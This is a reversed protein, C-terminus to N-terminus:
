GAMSSLYSMHLVVGGISLQAWTGWWAHSELMINREPLAAEVTLAYQYVHGRVTCELRKVDIVTM